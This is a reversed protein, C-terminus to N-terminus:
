GQASVGLVMSTRSYIYAVMTKIAQVSCLNHPLKRKVRTQSARSREVPVLVPMQSGERMVPGTACSAAEQFGHLVDGGGGAALQQM